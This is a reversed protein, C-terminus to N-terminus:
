LLGLHSGSSCVLIDLYPPSGSGFKHDSRSNASAHMLWMQSPTTSQNILTCACSLEFVAHHMGKGPSSDAFRQHGCTRRYNIPTHTNCGVPWCTSCLPCQRLSTEGADLTVRVRMSKTNLCSNREVKEFPLISRPPYDIM